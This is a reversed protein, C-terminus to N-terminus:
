YQTESQRIRALGHALKRSKEHVGESSTIVKSVWFARGCRAEREDRCVIPKKRGAGPVIDKIVDYVAKREKGACLERTGLPDVISAATAPELAPPIHANRTAM